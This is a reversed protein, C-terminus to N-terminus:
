RRSSSRRSNQPGSGPWCAERWFSPPSTLSRSSGRGLQELILAADLFDGGFGGLEEPFCVGLWGHEGMARWTAADWSNETERQERFRSVPSDAEVWRAVTEVIMQQEDTQDFNM